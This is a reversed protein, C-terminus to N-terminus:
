FDSFFVTLKRFKGFVVLTKYFLGWFNLNPSAIKQAHKKLYSKIIKVFKKLNQFM